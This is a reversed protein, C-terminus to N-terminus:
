EDGGEEVEDVQEMVADMVKEANVADAALPKVVEFTMDNAIEDYVKKTKIHEHLAKKNEEEAYIKKLEEFDHNMEQAALQLEADVDEDTVLPNLKEVLANLVIKGKVNEEANERFQERLDEEKSQTMQLYTELSFGQSRFRYDLDKMGQEVEFEIMSEPIDLVVIDCIAKLAANKKALELGKQWEIETKEVLHKRYEEVTDFESIEEILEDNLEPIETMKIEHLTVEFVAPKGALDKHHYDAPFDVNVDFSEGTKKGVVQDEFGPIFQKSGLKLSHNKAAGGEFEVGDVKGNFDIIVTDGNEAGRDEVLVQRANKTRESELMNEVVSEDFDDYEVKCELGQYDPLEVEPMLDVKAEILIDKGEEFEKIDIDPRSVVDLDLEAVAAEYASPIMENLADEYFVGKGYNNEIVKRPVKGKRFGPVSYRGKTKNYALEIGKKFDETSIVFEISARYGEKNLLKAM